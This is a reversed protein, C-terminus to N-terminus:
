LVICQLYLTSHVEQHATKGLMVLINDFFCSNNPTKSVEVITKLCKQLTENSTDPFCSKAIQSSNPCRDEVCKQCSCQNKRQVQLNPLSSTKACFVHYTTPMNTFHRLYRAKQHQCFVAFLPTQAAHLEFVDSNANTEGSCLVTFLYGCNQTQPTRVFVGPYVSCPLRSVTGKQFGKLSSGGTRTRASGAASRRSSLFYMLIMLKCNM